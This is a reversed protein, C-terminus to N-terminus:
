FQYSYRQPCVTIDGVYTEVGDKLQEWTTESDEGPETLKAKIADAKQELEDVQRADRTSM